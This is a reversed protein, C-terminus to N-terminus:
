SPRAQQTAHGQDSTSGRLNGDVFTVLDEERYRILRGLRVYRPGIGTIRHRELTRASIGLLKAASKQSLLANM